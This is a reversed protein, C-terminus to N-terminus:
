RVRTLEYATVPHDLGKVKLGEVARTELAAGCGQATAESLLVQGPAALGELRAALNVTAGLATYEKKHQSGLLGAVVRGTSIGQGLRLGQLGRSDSQGALRQNLDAVGDRIEAAARVARLADDGLSVPAGFIAMIGDGIHKDIIGNHRLITDGVPSYYHHELDHSLAEPDANECATTFGRIDVFLITAEQRRPALLHPDRQIHTLIQPSVLQSLKKKLYFDRIRARLEDNEFPKTLFGDVGNNTAQIASELTAYGTLVIRILDPRVEGVRTLTQIGDLGPMKLDSIVIQIGNSQRVFDIAKLGDEVTHVSYGEHRLARQISRRVGEEDDVVLVGIGGSAPEM